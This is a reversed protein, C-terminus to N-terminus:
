VSLEKKIKNQYDVILSNEPQQQKLLEFEKKALAIYGSDYLIIARLLKAEFFDATLEELARKYHKESYYLNALAFHYNQNEPSISIALNYFRKAQQVDGMKFYTSACNYYYEDKKPALKAASSFYTVASKFDGQYQKMLGVFNLCDADSEIIDIKDLIEVCENKRNMRYLIKGKLLNKKNDFSLEIARNILCEAEDLKNLFMKAYAKEYLIDATEVEDRYDFVESYREQKNLFKFIEVLDNSDKSICYINKATQEAEAWAKKAIFIKKLLKLALIHTPVKELIQEIYSLAREADGMSYYCEAIEFFLEVSSNDCELAKYFSEIAYKYYGKSKLIFGEQLLEKIM